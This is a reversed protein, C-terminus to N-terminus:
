ASLDRRAEELLDAATDLASQRAPRWLVWRSFRRLIGHGYRFSRSAATQAVEAELTAVLTRRRATERDLRELRRGLRREERQTTRLEEDLRARRQELDM